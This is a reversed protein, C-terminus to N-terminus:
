AIILYLTCVEEMCQNIFASRLILYQLDICQLVTLRSHIPLGNTVTKM